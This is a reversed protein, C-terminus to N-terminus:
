QTNLLKWDDEACTKAYARESESLMAAAQPLCADAEGNGCAKALLFLRYARFKDKPLSQGGEPLWSLQDDAGSPQEKVRMGDALAEQDTSSSPSAPLSAALPHLMKLAAIALRRGATIQAKDLQPEAAEVANGMRQFGLLRALLFSAYGGVQDKRVDKGQFALVGSVFAAEAHGQGAASQFWGLAETPQKALGKGLLNMWALAYQADANGQDAAKRFCTAAEALDQKVGWGLCYLRGLEFPDGARDPPQAPQLKKWIRDARALSEALEDQSMTRGLAGLCDESEPNGCAKAALLLAYARVRADSSRAPRRAFAEPFGSEPDKGPDRHVQAAQFWKKAERPDAEVGEGNAYMMALNYQADADGAEAAKRYWGAAASADAAVGDGLEFARALKRQAELYGQDAAKRLCRAAAAPDKAEGELDAYTRALRCLERENGHAEAQAFWQRAEVPDRVGDRTMLLEGLAIQ